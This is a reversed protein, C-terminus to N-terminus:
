STAPFASPSAVALLTVSWLLFRRRAVVFAGFRDFFAPRETRIRRARLPLISLM